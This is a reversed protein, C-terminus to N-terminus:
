ELIMWHVRQRLRVEGPYAPTRRRVDIPSVQMLPYGRVDALDLIARAEAQTLPEIEQDRHTPAEVYASGARSSQRLMRPRVGIRSRDM